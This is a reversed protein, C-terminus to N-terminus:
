LPKTNIKKAEEATVQFAKAIISNVKKLGELKIQFDGSNLSEDMYISKKAELQIVQINNKPDQYKQTIFGGQYPNDKAVSLGYQEAEEKLTEYFVSILQLDASTDNLCGIVFDPREKGSDPTNQLGLSNMSHCDFLLAFGHEQKMKKIEEKILQHYQDYYNLLKEKETESFEEILIAEGTLSDLHFPDTQLHKPKTLDVVKNRGVNVLYPNLNFIVHTGSDVDYVQDTFLDTGFLSSKGLNLKEKFELPVLLGSHPISLIYDTTKKSITTPSNIEQAEKKLINITEM